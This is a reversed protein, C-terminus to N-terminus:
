KTSPPCFDIACAEYKTGVNVCMQYYCNPATVKSVRVTLPLEVTTTQRKEQRLKEAAIKLIGQELSTQASLRELEAANMAEPRNTSDIREQQAIAFNGAIGVALLLLLLATKKINM